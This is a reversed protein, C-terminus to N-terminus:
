RLLFIRPGLCLVELHAGEPPVALSMRGNELRAFEAAGPDLADVLKVSVEGAGSEASAVEVLEIIRRSREHPEADPEPLDEPEVPPLQLVIASALTGAALRLRGSAPDYSWGVGDQAAVDAPDLEAAFPRLLGGLGGSIWGPAREPLEVVPARTLARGQGLAFVGVVLVVLALLLWRNM